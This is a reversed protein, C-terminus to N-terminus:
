RLGYPGRCLERHLWNESKEAGGQHIWPGHLSSGRKDKLVRAACSHRVEGEEDGSKGLHRAEIHLSVLPGLSGQQMPKETLCLLATRHRNALGALRSQVPLSLERHCGLDLVVLGFGGSRLLADAARPLHRPGPLRLLALAGLDIGSAAVDPPFFCSARSTAWAVPEGLKQAELVLRFTLSLVASAPGGSLESLRGRFTPLGWSGPADFAVVGRQIGELGPPLGAQLDQATRPVSV